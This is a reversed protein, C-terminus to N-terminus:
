SSTALWSLGPLLAGKLLNDALAPHSPHLAWRGLLGLASMAAGGLALNRVVGPADLGYDLRAPNRRMMGPIRQGCALISSHGAVCLPSGIPLYHDKAPLSPDGPPILCIQFGPDVLATM